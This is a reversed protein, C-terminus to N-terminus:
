DLTVDLAHVVGGHVVTSHKGSWHFETLKQWMAIKCQNLGSLTWTFFAANFFSSGPLMKHYICHLPQAVVWCGSPPSSKHRTGCRVEEIAGGM